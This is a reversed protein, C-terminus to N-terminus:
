KLAMLTIDEEPKSESTSNSSDLSREVKNIFDASARFVTERQADLTIVHGSGELWLLEKKPTGLRDCILPMSGKMPYEDQRAHMLLVPQTVFPLSSRLLELLKRM